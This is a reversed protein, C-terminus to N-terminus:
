VFIVLLQSISIFFTANKDNRIFFVVRMGEPKEHNVIRSWDFTVRLSRYQPIAYYLEKHECATMLLILIVVGMMRIKSMTDERRRTVIVM